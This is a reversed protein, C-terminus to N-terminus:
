VIFPANYKATNPSTSILVKSTLSIDKQDPINTSVLINITDIIIPGNKGTSM